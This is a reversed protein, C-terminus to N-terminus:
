SHPVKRVSSLLELMQRLVSWAYTTSAPTYRNFVGTLNIILKVFNMSAKLLGPPTGGGGRRGIGIGAETTGQGSWAKIGM